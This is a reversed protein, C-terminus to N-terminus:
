FLGNAIVGVATIPGTDDLGDLARDAKKMIAQADRLMSDDSILKGLTGEGRSIKDSMQRINAISVRLDDGAKQDFVLAGIAGQGAKVQDIISQANAVFTKAEAASAKIEGITAVLEDHLKPDNIIRGLTGNGKNVKDTIEQLSTMTHSIKEQNETVLRDVKQIIGPNNADGSLASGLNGLASELKQGLQGMQNMVSNLDPTTQTIIESGERLEPANASGLEVGIYNTGLLGAMVITAVADAKIRYQSEIRLVAEARRGALRTKEVQGIKVGAMRVEDGDKLEKVSEFGAVIVYGKDQFVKGGSLTEFTVWVLALGLIFFLGVRAAQQTNNM